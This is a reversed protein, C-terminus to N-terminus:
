LISLIWLYIDDYVKLKDTENLIEHRDNEYLKLRVNKMGLDLFSQYAARVGKGYNGVPDEAGSAFLVPLEPPMNKLNEKKNLRALLEFLTEFGNGTFIFGCLEDKEYAKVVEKDKTLWSFKSKEGKIRRNYGWFSLFNLIRSKKKSARVLKKLAAVAKGFSIVVGPQTATGVIIAGQIGTGYRCLYNRLIFSGMSHGLIIYPVGPYKEQIQKKLRHSDRVVVTAPDQECFYGKTGSEGVTEGHGLHDEGVVMIGKEAMAKAFDDYRKIHEAMGHIIQLICIPKDTDPIWQKSYIKSVNDRSDFYLNERRVM